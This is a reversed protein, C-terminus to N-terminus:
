CNADTLKLLVSFLEPYVICNLCVYFALNHLLMYDARHQQMVVDPLNYGAYTSMLVWTHVKYRSSKTSLNLQLKMPLDRGCDTVRSSLSGVVAVAEVFVGYQM